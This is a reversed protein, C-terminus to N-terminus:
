LNGEFTAATVEEPVFDYDGSAAESHMIYGGAPKEVGDEIFTTAEEFVFAVRSLDRPPNFRTQTNRKLTSAEKNIDSALELTTKDSDKIDTGQIIVNGNIGFNKLDINADLPLNVLPVRVRQKYVDSM